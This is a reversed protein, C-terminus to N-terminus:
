KPYINEENFEQDFIVMYINPVLEGKSALIEDIDSL